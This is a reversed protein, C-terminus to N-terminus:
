FMLLNWLLESMTCANAFHLATEHWMTHNVCLRTLRASVVSLSRCKQSSVCNAAVVSTYLVYLVCSKATLQSRRRLTSTYHQDRDPALAQSLSLNPEDRFRIIPRDEWGGWREIEVEGQIVSVPDQSPAAVPSGAAELRPFWTPIPM